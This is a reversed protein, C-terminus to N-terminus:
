EAAERWRQRDIEHIARNYQRAAEKLENFLREYDKADPPPARSCSTLRSYNTIPRPWSKKCPTWM